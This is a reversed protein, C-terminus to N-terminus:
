KEDSEGTPLALHEQSLPAFKEVAEHMEETLVHRYIDATTAVSAHRLIKSVVELKAGGRLAHTAFFHRLQHPTMERIGLKRCARKLTKEFSSISWYGLETDGPFLYPSGNDKHEEMYRKLADETVPLMPVIGEKDGKGIVRIEHIKLNIDKKLIGAAESIRLGTTMLLLAMTQFKPTDSARHCEYRFLRYVDEAEPLERAHYRVRIAKLHATPDLPWLGEDYLFSFLSRLAKRDNSVRAASVQGLRDALWQQISLKSPTPDRRLYNEATVVYLEITRRSYSEQKLKAVWLPIGKAPTQLGQAPGIAMTIGEREALQRVMLAVLERNPPSLANLAKVTSELLPDIAIATAEQGPVKRPTGVESYHPHGQTPAQREKPAEGAQGIATPPAERTDVKM